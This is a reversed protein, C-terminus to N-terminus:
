TEWWKPWNRKCPRFNNKYSPPKLKRKKYSLKKSMSINLYNKEKKLLNSFIYKEEHILIEMMKQFKKDKCFKEIDELPIEETDRYENTYTYPEKM